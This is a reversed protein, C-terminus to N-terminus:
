FGEQFSEIKISKYVLMVFLILLSASKRLYQCKRLPDLRRGHFIARLSDFDARFDDKKSVRRGGSGGEQAPCGGAQEMGALEALGPLIELFDAFLLLRWFSQRSKGQYFPTRPIRKRHGHKTFLPM